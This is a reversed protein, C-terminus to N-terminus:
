GGSCGKMSDNIVPECGYNRRSYEMAAEIRGHVSEQNRPGFLRWGAVLYDRHLEPRHPRYPLLKWSEVMVQAQFRADALADHVCDPPTLPHEDPAYKGTRVGLQLLMDTYTRMDRDDRYHWPCKMGLHDYAERLIRNDFNSGNGWVLAGKGLYM